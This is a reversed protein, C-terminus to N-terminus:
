KSVLDEIELDTIKTIGTILYVLAVIMVITSPLAIVPYSLATLKGLEATFEPTGSPSIVIVKALIYNLTASLMFSGVILYNVIKMRKKYAFEAKHLKLSTNIKEMDLMEALLKEVFSFKTRTSFLIALGIILPVAAEKVAIWKIDLHLLGIGGTLFISIIGLISIFNYKKRKIFDYVGYGFPFLLAIILGYAPGLQQDGSFKMLIISPIVINIVINILANEKQKTKDKSNTM